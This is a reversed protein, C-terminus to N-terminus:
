HTTLTFDTSAMISSSVSDRGTLTLTYTTAAATPPASGTTGTGTGSGSCGSIGLGVATLSVLALLTPIGRVRRRTAFGTLLLGAFGLAVPRGKWPRAPLGAPPVINGAKEAIAPVPRMSPLNPPAACVAAGVGISLTDTTTAQTGSVPLVKIRYCLNPAATSASLTWVISGSYGGSPTATVTSTGVSGTAVTLNTAALTFSGTAPTNTTITVTTTGISPAHVADGSYVAKIVHVGGAGAAAYSFNASGNVLTLTASSVGDVSVAVTGTPIVAGTSTSTVNIAIVDTAGTAPQATAPALTTVSNPLATFSTSPWASVLNAFNLSGLGTAEDYGTGAAFGSAGAASCYTTSAIPCAITGSTIDHFASAYIAPNAALGYLQPNLSGQGTAHKVQNLLATMGALVPAAFSTGGAILLYKGSADRFGNTCSGTLAEARLNVADSSCYLYGPASVASLLSVDPLLRTSGAAIGPVGTQWTPRAFVISAGGGGASLSKTIADENWAVEPVYSLLSSTVDTGSASAWYTSAGAVSAGDVMQTGGVATVYPSSAPFSASLQEQVANTQNPSGYCSESGTDGTSAIISQGQAAAQMYIANYSNLLSASALAECGGYSISVVPAINETIAYNLADFVNFPNGNATAGNGVYVLYVNAGPAMGGAYELDIDSEGEDGSSIGAVGTNPVLVLTPANTPLGAAAQFATVDSTLVYSQGVVAISQGVGTYGASYLAQVNYMTAVDKPTLYHAQTLSSTYDPVPVAQARALRLSPKPRFDSTHLVATVLPALAAPLRLTTAPAFHTEGRLSYSHLETGFALGVTGATGSFTMANHSRNVGQISFGEGQLWTEVRALDADAVGFRKGFGDPTLWQHYQPSAPDQQAALVGQLDAEQAASRSFVLTLGDMPTGPPLVGTDTAMAALPPRSGPLATAPEGTIPGRLRSAPGQAMAALPLSSLLAVWIPRLFRRLQQKVM